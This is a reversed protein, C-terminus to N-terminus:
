PYLLYKKRKEKFINLDEQWSARINKEDMGSSIQKRLESTGALKEFYNNFFSSKNEFRQYMDLLYNLDFKYEMSVTRLDIGHCVKNEHPPNKSMGDISVPTFSFSMGALDPHGIVQFPFLTGRGLSLTTGEFLCISPYLAIARDSNLNPSPWVPLKYADAHKWNLVKIVELECKISGRLWGEENIMHAFEGISLGHVIPIPHMGVFSYHEPQIVPGDVYSGNPNPRDFILLPIKNEACAEMVYHLTSIYTYFRVGVDQIDFIMLDIDKLQESSPKKNSGYLSVIPLGSKADISDDVKEGADAKGRFGHEPSFIKNVQVNMRLLSDVLHTKGITSTQNVVLGIQKGKLLPLYNATQEAGTVVVQSQEEQGSQAQCASFFILIFGAKFLSLIIKHIMNGFNLM